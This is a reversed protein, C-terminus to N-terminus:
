HGLIRDYDALFQILQRKSKKLPTETRWPDVIMHAHQYYMSSDTCGYLITLLLAKSQEAKVAPLIVSIIGLLNAQKDKIHLVTYAILLIAYLKCRMVDSSPEKKEFDAVVGRAFAMDEDSVGGSLRHCLIEHLRPLLSDKIVIDTSENDNLGIVKYQGKKIHLLPVSLWKDVVVMIEQGNNRSNDFLHAEVGKLPGSTIRIRDGKILWSTDGMYVPIVGSYSAAIWKLNQIVEDSVYPYYPEGDSSTERRPFNYQEEFKKMRFLENESAHVFVYNYFLQKETRIIRNESEKAEVYIPAFYEIQPEGEKERRAIERELGLLLGKRGYPYIMLYWRRVTKNRARRAALVEADPMNIQHDADSLKAM